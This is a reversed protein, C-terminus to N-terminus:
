DLPQLGPSNVWDDLHAAVKARRARRLMDESEAGAPLQATQDRLDTTFSVLREKFSQAQRLRNREFM